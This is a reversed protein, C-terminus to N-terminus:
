SPRGKLADAVIEVARDVEAEGVVLPPTMRLVTDGATLVLLGRERCATVVPGAPGDLEVGVLLGKGRVEKVAATGGAMARLRGMLYGGVRDVREPLKDELMTTVTAVGVTTAFPNGGFTTGHTGAGLVASCSEKALLAGIPIGSALAKAVTMVDPEVGWHEYAWFRGTRAMGTQVEDFVLLAGTADCIRRLSALYGDPAV